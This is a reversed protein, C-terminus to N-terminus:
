WNNFPQIATHTHYLSPDPGGSRPGSMCPLEGNRSTSPPGGQIIDSHGKQLKHSILFRSFLSPQERRAWQTYLLGVRLWKQHAGSIKPNRNGM